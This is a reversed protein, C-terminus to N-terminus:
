FQASKFAVVTSRPVLANGFSSKVTTTVSIQKIGTFPQTVQWVRQYFWTTPPAAGGGLLDGDEELWDVYGNVPNATDLSGGVALGTGGSPLAPFQTTDSVADTYVLVLLQEM